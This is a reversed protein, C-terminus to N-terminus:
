KTPLISSSEAGAAQGVVHHQYALRRLAVFAVDLLVTRAVLGSPSADSTSAELVALTEAAQAYASLDDSDVAVGLQHLSSLARALTLGAPTSRPVTWGLQGLLEDVQARAHTLEVPEDAVASQRLLARDLLRHIRTRDDGDMASLLHRTWSVSLQGVAILTRALRLRTLHGEGYEAHNRVTTTGSHLLGERLYYKITAIPVGSRRSLESIRM